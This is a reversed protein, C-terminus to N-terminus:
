KSLIGGCFPCRHLIINDNNIHMSLGVVPANGEVNVRRLQAIQGEGKEIMRALMACTLLNEDEFSCKGNKM